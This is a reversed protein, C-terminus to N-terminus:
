EHCNACFQPLFVYNVIHERNRLTLRRALHPLPDLHASPRNYPASLRILGNGEFHEPIPCAAQTYRIQLRNALLVTILPLFFFSM